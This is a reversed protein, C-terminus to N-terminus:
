HFGFLLDKSGRICLWNSACTVVQVQSQYRFCSPLKQLVSGNVRPVQNQRLYITDFNLKGTPCQTTHNHPCGLLGGMRDMTPIPHLVVKVTYNNFSVKPCKPM